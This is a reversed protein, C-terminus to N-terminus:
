LPCPTLDANQDELLDKAAEFDGSAYAVAVIGMVDLASYYYEVDPSTANLLAAVAHRALAAEGGGGMRIVSGLDTPDFSADVNFVLEFDDEPTYVTWKDGHKLNKWYGPTCGQWPPPPPPPLELDFWLLSQKEGGNVLGTYLTADDGGNLDPQPEWIYADAVNGSTGRQITVCDTESFCIELKPRRSVEDHESSYFTTYETAGQELLLGYNPYDGSFWAQVLGTVDVSRWDFNDAVFSGVIGSDFSNGFNSWTVGAETWPATIRHVNVTANSSRTVWISLTASYIGNAAVGPQTVVSMAVILMTLVVTLRVMKHKM